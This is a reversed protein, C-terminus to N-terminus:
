NPVLKKTKFISAAPDDSVDNNVWLAVIHLSNFFYGEYIGKHRPNTHYKITPPIVFFCM